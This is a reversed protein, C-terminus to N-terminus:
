VLFLFVNIKLANEAYILFNVKLFGVSFGRLAM